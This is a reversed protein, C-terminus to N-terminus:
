MHPQAVMQSRHALCSLRHQSFLVWRGQRVGEGPLVPPRHSLDRSELTVREGKGLLLPLCRHVGLLSTKKELHRACLM